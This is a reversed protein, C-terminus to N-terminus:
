IEVVIDLLEQHQVGSLSQDHDCTTGVGANNLNNFFGSLCEELINVKDKTSKM